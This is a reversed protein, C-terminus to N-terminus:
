WTFYHDNKEQGVYEFQLQDTSINPSVIFEYKFKNGRNQIHLDIGEYFDSLTADRYVHVKSAWKSPDNGKLYNYYHPSKESKLIESVEQSGIFNLHIVEQKAVPEEIATLLPKAHAEHMSSFDQLHYVFKNQQVWVKGGDIKSQFLVGEPWQGKNEILSEKSAGHNHNHHYKQEQSWYNQAFFCLFLSIYIQIKM